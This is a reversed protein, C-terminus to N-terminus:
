FGIKKLYGYDIKIRFEKLIQDVDVKFAKTINNVFKMRSTDIIGLETAEAFNEELKKCINLAENQKHNETYVNFKDYIKSNIFEDICFTGNDLAFIYKNRFPLYKSEADKVRSVDIGLAKYNFDEEADKFPFKSELEKYVFDIGESSIDIKETKKLERSLVLSVETILNNLRECVDNQIALEREYGKTNHYMFQEKFNSM